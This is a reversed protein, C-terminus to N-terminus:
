VKVNDGVVLIIMIYVRAVLILENYNLDFLKDDPSPGFSVSALCMVKTTISKLLTLWTFSREETEYIVIFVNIVPM